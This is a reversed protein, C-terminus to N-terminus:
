KATNISLFAYNKQEGSRFHLRCETKVNAMRRTLCMFHKEQDSLTVNALEALMGTFVVDELYFEDIQRTHLLIAKITAPTTLYVTGQMFDPYVDKPYMEKSAYWSHQPDRFPGTLHHVNGFYVLPNQVVIPRLKKETWHALRRLHVLADDDVKMVWKANACFSQQWKLGGFWKLHIHAYIDVFGHLFVLDGHEAQEEELKKQVDIAEGEGADAILFRIVEGPVSDNMWTQRIGKRNEFGHRRSMTLMILETTANGMTANGWTANDVTANDVTANDVTANDVTANDVTANDVTANDVTANDVTANDVTANDVTANDVTANDVTANDVTANDVTANDVTANDVTANDVTANDVTANDVTANDVTANDVTANDVTANDVTANDVTANDVTANDVTANDVTANKWLRMTWLRMTWLRMTWLRMTWLRMTWLRMTWLRMTWLRMTWLRMTWLRMTWLRMTWLRMTWLRMTWLRMTWLRMTWLRMTWLRMAWLRMARLRLARFGQIYEEGDDARADSKKKQCILVNCHRLTLALKELTVM